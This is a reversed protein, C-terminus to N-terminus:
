HSPCPTLILRIHPRMCHPLLEHKLNTGSSTCCAFSAGPQLVLERGRELLAPRSKCAQGMPQLTLLWPFRLPNRPLLGHRATPLTPFSVVYWVSDIIWIRPRSCHGPDVTNWLSLGLTRGLYLRAELSLEQVLDLRYGTFPGLDATVGHHQV